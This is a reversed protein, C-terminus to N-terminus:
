VLVVFPHLFGPTTTSREAVAALEGAGTMLRFYQAPREASALPRASPSFDAPGVDCGHIARCAGDPTLELAPLRPLMAAVPVIKSQVCALGHDPHEMAELTVTGTLAIDGSRTRRLEVVHAGVGLREGLDHALSRIYFGASCRVYLLVTDGELEVLEIAYATVSVADPVRVTKTVSASVSASRRALRHSRVGAIKKASFAPPRQLFTGRFEDLARDIAVSSPVPGLSTDSTPRGEADGTNTAFGLRIRTLYEKDSTSLFRALRTARGIVLPLVGTALPDLTGTHGVRSEKLVRRVRKVVDHSTLGAPKDIALLGDM